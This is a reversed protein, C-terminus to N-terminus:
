LRQPRVCERLTYEPLLAIEPMGNITHYFLYTIVLAEKPEYALAAYIEERRQNASAKVVQGRQRIPNPNYRIIHLKPVGRKTLEAYVLSMRECEYVQDYKAHAFEDVEIITAWGDNRLLFDLRAFQRPAGISFKVTFEREFPRSLQTLTDAVAEEFRKRRPKGNHMSLKHSRLDQSRKCTYWCEDCHIPNEEAHVLKHRDLVRRQKCAFPCVDCIYKPAEHTERHANRASITKFKMGCQNCDFAKEETGHAHRHRVLWFPFRTVYSCLPCCLMKCKACFKM